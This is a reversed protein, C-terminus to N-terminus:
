DSFSNVIPIGISIIFTGCTEGSKKGRIIPAAHHPLKKYLAPRLASISAARKKYIFIKSM